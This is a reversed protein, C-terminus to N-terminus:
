KKQYLFLHRFIGGFGGNETALVRVVIRNKGPKVVGAPLDQTWTYNYREWWAHSPQYAVLTGNIWIWAENNIGGVYLGLKDANFKRDFEFDAAYFMEGRFPIMQKKDDFYGQMEIARPVEIDKWSSIDFDKRFWEDVIGQSLGDTQFKWFKPFDVALVGDKGNRLADTNLYQVMKGYSSRNAGFKGYVPRKDMRYDRHDFSIVSLKMMEEELKQMKQALKAAGAYDRGRECVGRMKSYTHLHDATVRLMKMRLALNEDGTGAALNEAEAILPMLGSIFEYNYFEPILEEEHTNVTFNRVADELASYFKKVPGAAPGYLKDYAEDLIKEGDGEPNWLMKGLMYINLFHLNWVQRCEWRMGLPKNEPRALFKVDRIINHMQPIPLTLSFMFNPYYPRYIFKDLRRKWAKFMAAIQKSQWNDPHDIPKVLSYELLALHGGVNDSFKFESPPTYIRGCYISASIIKDPFEPKLRAAVNSILRYYSGSVSPKDDGAVGDQKRINGNAALCKACYCIFMGDHPAFGVFTLEPNNRFMERIKRVLIEEVEPHTMCIVKIDRGKGDPLLGFYEPHDKFMDDTIFRHISSDSANSFGAHFELFRNRHFFADLENAADNNVHTLWYGRMLFGPREFVDLKGVSINANAPIVEGLRGPMYWRCGLKELFAYVAFLTGKYAKGFALNYPRKPDPFKKKSKRNGRNGPLLWGDDNGALVLDQGVTRILFGEKIEDYSQGSPIDLKMGATYRSPGVLIKPGTVQKDDTKIVFDAGSIRDLFYKLEKAALQNKYPADAAVVIVAEAKGNKTITMIKEGSGVQIGKSCMGISACSAAILSVAVAAAILTFNKM